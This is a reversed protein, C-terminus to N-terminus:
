RIRRARITGTASVTGSAFSADANLYYTTPSSLNARIVGTNIITGLETASTMQMLAASGDGANVTSSITTSITCRVYVAAVSIAHLCSGSIDWDGATLAISTVNAATITTLSVPGATATILEGVKGAAASSGDTVGVILPTTLTKNTLTDTTAKGVLTDTAAPLTLVGSAIASAQLQTTGSTAGVLTELQTFVNPAAAASGVNYGAQTFLLDEKYSPM